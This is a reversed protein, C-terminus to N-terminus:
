PKLLVKEGDATTLDGAVITDRYVYLHALGEGEDSNLIRYTYLKVRKGFYPELDMGAQKQLENYKTLVEDPEDPIRVERIEMPEAETEYGLSKLFAIRQEETGVQTSVAPSGSVLQSSTPFFAAAIALVTVLGLCMLSSLVQKKTARISFVFM